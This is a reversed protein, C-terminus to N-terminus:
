PEATQRREVCGMFRMEEGDPEDESAPPSTRHDFMLTSVIASTEPNQIKQMKLLLRDALVPFVLGSLSSLVGYKDPIQVIEFPLGGKSEKLAIIVGLVTQALLYFGGERRIVSLTRNYMRFYRKYLVILSIVLVVASDSTFGADPDGVYDSLSERFARAPIFYSQVTNLFRHRKAITFSCPYGFQVDIKTVPIYIETKMVICAMVTLPVWFIMFVVVLFWLYGAKAELLAYLCLWLTVLSKGHAFTGALMRTVSSSLDLTETLGGGWTHMSAGSSAEYVAQCAKVSMGTHNSTNYAYDLLHASTYLYRTALFLIKGLKLSPQPWINNVEEDFTTVYYYLLAIKSAGSSTYVPNVFPLNCDRVMSERFHLQGDNQCHIRLDCVEMALSRSMSELEKQSFSAM